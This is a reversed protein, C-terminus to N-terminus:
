RWLARSRIGPHPILRTSPNFARCAIALGVNQKALALRNDDLDIAIVDEAFSHGLGQIIM